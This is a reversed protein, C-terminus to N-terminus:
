LFAPYGVSYLLLPLEGEELQFVISLEDDIFAGMCVTGLNLATAVLYINQGIHGADELVYRYARLGYKSYTRDYVGVILINFAAELVQSQELSAKYIERKFDGSKILEIAHRFPNYHYIGKDISEVNDIHIFAEPSNLAGATPYTRLPYGYKYGRIGAVFHIFTSFIKFDIPKSKYRRISRRKSLADSLSMELLNEDPKDLDISGLYEGRREFGPNVRWELDFRYPFPIKSVIHYAMGPDGKFVDIVEKMADVCYKYIM